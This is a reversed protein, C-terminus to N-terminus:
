KIVNREQKLTLVAMTLATFFWYVESPKVVMFPETAFSFFLMILTAIFLGASLGVTLGDKSKLFGQFSKKIIAFILFFFIVSGVIGNEVLNRLYQNHSEELALIAGKGFGFPLFLPAKLAEELQPKIATDLRGAQYNLLLNDSEFIFAIRHAVPVGKFTFVFIGSIFILILILPLINKLKKEKFFWLFLTLSIAIILGLFVTKSAAGIVGIILSMTIIMVIAKKFPSFPFFYYLSINVLFIFLLIFFAGTPFVGWECIAATGYEGPQVGTIIQYIVYGVNALGLIIWFKVISKVSDISKIHYFLYFYLFFFEVDKLFYFFGRSLTVNEFIWNTLLGIFGISLWALMPLFLPPKKISKRGSILFNAIWVLGLIAILIDEIRIEIIKDLGEVKGVLFSPSLAIAGALLILPLNEFWAKKM